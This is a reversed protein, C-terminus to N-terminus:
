TQMERSTASGNCASPAVRTAIASVGSSAPSKRLNRWSSPPNGERPGDRIYPARSVSLALRHDVLFDLVKGSPRRAGRDITVRPALRVDDFSFNCRLSASSLSTAETRSLRRSRASAAGGGSRSRAIASATQERARHAPEDDGREAKAAAIRKQGGFGVPRLGFISQASEFRLRSLRVVREASPGIPSLAATAASPFRIPASSALAPADFM